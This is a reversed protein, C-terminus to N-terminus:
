KFSNAPRHDFWYRGPGLRVLAHLRVLLRHCVFECWQALLDVRDVRLEEVQEAPARAQRLFYAVDLGLRQRRHKAGLAFRLYQAADGLAIGARELVVVDLGDEAFDHRGAARQFFADGDGVQARGAGEALLGHVLLEAAGDVAQRAHRDVFHEAGGFGAGRVEAHDRDFIRGLARDVAREVQHEGGGGDDAAFDRDRHVVAQHGAGAAHVADGHHAGMRLRQRLALDPEVLVVGADLPARHRRVGFRGHHGTGIRRDGRDGAFHRALLVLEAHDLRVDLVVRVVAGAEGDDAVASWGDPASWVEGSATGL